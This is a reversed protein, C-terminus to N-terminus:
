IPYGLMDVVGWTVTAIVSLGMLSSWGYVCVCMFMYVCVCMYKYICVCDGNVPSLCKPM